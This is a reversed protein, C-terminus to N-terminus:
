SKGINTVAYTAVSPLTAGSLGMSRESITDEKGILETDRESTVTDEATLEIDRESTATSKGTLTIDRETTSTDKGIFEIVRESTGSDKGKFELDRETNVTDKGTLVIDRESNTFDQGQLSLGRETTIDQSGILETSRESNAIDEGELEIDRDNNVSDKGILEFDKDSNYTNKGILQISRESDTDDKVNLEIDRESNDDQIGTLGFNRESSTETGASYTECEINSYPSDDKLNKVRYCYEAGNELTDEDNYIFDEGDPEIVIEEEIVDWSGGDKQREIQWANENYEGELEISRESTINDIGHLEINREDNATESSTEESGITYVNSPNSLNEQEFTIWSTSRRIDSVRVEDIKGDLLGDRAGIFLTFDALDLNGSVSGGGASPTDEGGDIYLTPQQGSEWTMALAQWTQYLASGGSSENQSDDSDTEISFKFIDSEGGSFGDSDYRLGTRSDDSQTTAEGGFISGDSPSDDSYSFLSVTLESGGNVGIDGFQVYDGSGDGEIAEDGVKTETSQVSANGSATGNNAYSTSDNLGDHSVLRYNGDWVNEAGYTADNAYDSASSNGYYIYFETNETNSLTGKFHVEGKNNTNDYNVIERPVETEGDNTTIRIDGGDSRASDYFDTPLDSLDLYIPVDNLDDNVKNKDVTIKIRYDWNSNYWAM